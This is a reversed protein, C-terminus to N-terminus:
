KVSYMLWWNNLRYEKLASNFYPTCPLTANGCQEGSAPSYIILGSLTSSTKLETIPLSESGSFIGPRIIQLNIMIIVASLFGFWLIHNDHAAFIYQNERVGFVTTIHRLKMLVLTLWVSFIALLQHIVGLFRIDPVTLFWLLTTILLPMFALGATHIFKRCMCNSTTLQKNRLFLYWPVCISAILICFLAGIPLTKLWPKFWNWNGLVEAVEFGPRRAWSYTWNLESQITDIPIVWDAGSLAGFGMPYFPTGSLLYSRFIHICSFIILLYLLKKFKKLYTKSFNPHMFLVLALASLGFAAGSLKMTSILFCQCAFAVLDNPVLNQHQNRQWLLQLLHTFIAIQLVSIALDPTPASIDICLLALLILLAAQLYRGFCIKRLDSFVVSAIGLYIFLPGAVSYGKNWLPYVNLLAILQFYSQNFALRGHLNGLGLTIPHQNLWAISTFHYLGSDYNGPALLAGSSLLVIGLFSTFSIFPHRFIYQRITSLLNAWSVKEYYYANFLAILLVALSMKWDIPMLLQILSIVSILSAMGIWAHNMQISERSTGFFRLVIQGWSLLCFATIVTGLLVSLLDLTHHPDM